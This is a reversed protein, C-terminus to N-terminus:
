EVPMLLFYFFVVFLNIDVFRIPQIIHVLEKFSMSQWFECLFFYGSYGKVLYMSNIILLRGFILAGPGSTKSTFNALYKLFSNCQNELTQKLFYFLSHEQVGEILGTDSKNMAPLFELHCLCKPLCNPLTRYFQGQLAAM